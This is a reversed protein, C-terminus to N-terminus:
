DQPPTASDEVSSDTSPLDPLDMKIDPGVMMQIRQIVKYLPISLLVSCIVATILKLGHIDFIQSMGKSQRILGWIGVSWFLVNGFGIMGWSTQPYRKALEFARKAHAPTAALAILERPLGSFIILGSLSTLPALTAQCYVYVQFTGSPLGSGLYSFPLHWVMIVLGTIITVFAASFLTRAKDTGSGKQIAAIPLSLLTTFIWLHIFLKLEKSIDNPYSHIYEYPDSIGNLWAQVFDPVVDLWEAM